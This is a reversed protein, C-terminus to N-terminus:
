EQGINSNSLSSTIMQIMKTAIGYFKQRKQIGIADIDKANNVSRLLHGYESNNQDANEMM